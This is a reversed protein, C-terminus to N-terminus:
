NLMLLYKIQHSVLKYLRLTHKRTIVEETQRASRANSVKLGSAMTGREKHHVNRRKICCGQCLLSGCGCRLIACVCVCVCDFENVGCFLEKYRAFIPNDGHTQNHAQLYAFPAVTVVLLWLCVHLCVCVCVCDLHLFPMLPPRTFRAVTRPRHM